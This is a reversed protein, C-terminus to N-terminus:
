QPLGYMFVCFQGHLPGPSASWALSLRLLQFGAGSLRDSIVGSGSASREDTPRAPNAGTIAATGTNGACLPRRRLPAALLTTGRLTM